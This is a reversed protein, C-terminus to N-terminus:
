KHELFVPLPSKVYIKFTMRIHWFARFQNSLRCREERREDEQNTWVNRFRKWVMSYLFLSWWEFYTYMPVLKHKCIASRNIARPSGNKQGSYFATVAHQIYFYKCYGLCKGWCPWEPFFSDNKIKILFIFFIAGSGPLLRLNFNNKYYHKKKNKKKVTFSKKRAGSDSCYAANYPNFSQLRM